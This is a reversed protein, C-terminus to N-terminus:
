AIGEGLVYNQLEDASLNYLSYSAQVGVQNLLEQTKNDYVLPMYPVGALHATLIGHFQPGVFMLQKNHQKFFLLLTLPNYAFDIAQVQPYKAAWSTILDFGLPDVDRPELLAVIIKKHPAAAILEEVSATFDNAYQPKFRRLTIFLAREGSQQPLSTRAELKKADAAYVDLNLDRTYWAIDKDLTVASTIKKFNGRSEADRVVIHNAAKGALWASMHGFRSTSNYYGVGLLYIKKGLLWRSVWLVVGLAFTSTNVDLGWLGGGGVVLQKNRLIAKLLEFKHSMAVLRCGFDHHYTAYRDFAQYLVDIDHVNQKKLMNLLVELLLEDGFNGGGYYGILLSKNLDRKKIVDAITM